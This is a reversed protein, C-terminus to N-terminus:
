RRASRDLRFGEAVPERFEFLVSDIDQTDADVILLRVLLKGLLVVQRELKQDVRIM